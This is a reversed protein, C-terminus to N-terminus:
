WTEDVSDYQGGGMAVQTHTGGVCVNMKKGVLQSEFLHLRGKSVLIYEKDELFSYIRGWILFRQKLCRDHVFSIFQFCEVHKVNDMNRAAFQDVTNM